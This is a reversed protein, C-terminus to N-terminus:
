PRKKAPRPAGGLENLKQQALARYPSNIAAAEAFATRAEANRKLNLLAFGLRYQNRAYTNPDAKLLPGAARLAEAAQANRGKYIHVQGLVSQALGQQLAKQQAWQEDTLQAPKRAGHLVELAKNAYGEAKDLQEGKDSWNDAQLTMLAAMLVQANGLYASDPFAKVFRELLAIKAQPDPAQNALNLLSSGVYGIDDAARELVFAKRQQWTEADTGEPPPSAKFRQLIAGIRDGLDFIKTTDGQEQAVRFLTVATNFNDPDLALAKEGYEFVKEYNKEGAYHAIYREYALLAVDGQGFEALFKGLLELRKAPDSTGDIESIAKDEPTGARLFPQRGIQASAPLTLVFLLSFFFVRRM